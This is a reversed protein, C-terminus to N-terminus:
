QWSPMTRLRFCLGAALIVYLAATHLAATHLAATHLAATHLAATYLYTEISGTSVVRPEAIFM